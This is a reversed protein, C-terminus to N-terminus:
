KIGWWVNDIFESFRGEKHLKFIDEMYRTPLFKGMEYGILKKDDLTVIDTDRWQLRQHLERYDIDGLIDNWFKDNRLIACKRIHMLLESIDGDKDVYEGILNILAQFTTTKNYFDPNKDKIREFFVKIENVSCTSVEWEGGFKGLHEKASNVATNCLTNATIELTLFSNWVYESASYSDGIIEGSFDIYYPMQMCLILPKIQIMEKNGCEWSWVATEFRKLTYIHDIEGGHIRNLENGERFIIKHNAYSIAVGECKMVIEQKVIDYITILFKEDDTIYIYSGEESCELAYLNADSFRTIETAYEWYNDTPYTKNLDLDYIRDPSIRDDSNFKYSLCYDENVGYYDALILKGTHNSRYIIHGHSIILKSDLFVFEPHADIISNIAYRGLFAEASEVTKIGQYRFVSFDFFITLFDNLSIGEDEHYYGSALFVATLMEDSRILGEVCMSLIIVRLLRYGEGHLDDMIYLDTDNYQEFGEDIIRRFYTGITYGTTKGYIVM